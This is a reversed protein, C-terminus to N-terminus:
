FGSKTLLIQWVYQHKARFAGACSLLYYKWLRYFREDYKPNGSKLKDWNKNFNEFWCMLTKDYHLGINQWNELVFLGEISKGIQQISPIVGNPFIYKDLFPEGSNVTFNNGISHLLFKGNPALCSNAVKMFKQYNKVGVHEFMGISAIRDFKFNIKALDRYDMLVLNVDYDKCLEQGLKIQEKSVTIGTVKVDYREAAYKAFGGWGCGIDLIHMGPKIDLKQCIIELKAEQAEDLNSANEWYGCSYIMHKDLMAKYLDNGIDYHQKGVTFSRSISQLNLLNSKIYFVPNSFKFKNQVRSKLLNFFLKDLEKCEWWNDIYSEGFGLSGATIVKNFFKKNFVNINCPYTQNPSNEGIINIGAENLIKTLIYRSDM